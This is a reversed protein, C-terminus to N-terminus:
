RSLASSAPMAPAVRFSRLPVLSGGARSSFRGYVGISVLATFWLWATSPEPISDIGRSTAEAEVNLSYPTDFDLSITSSLTLTFPTLLFSNPGVSDLTDYFLVANGAVQLNFLVETLALLGYPDTQMEQQGSIDASFTVAVPGSGGTIELRNLLTGTGTSMAAANVAGPIHISSSASGSLPSVAATGSASAHTVMAAATSPAGTNSTTESDLEGLSNQARASAASSWADLFQVTGSAASVRLNSFSLDATALVDARAVNSLCALLSVCALLAGTFPARPAQRTNHQASM